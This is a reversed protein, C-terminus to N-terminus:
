CCLKILEAYPPLFPVSAIKGQELWLTKMESQGALCIFFAGLAANYGFAQRVAAEDLSVSKCEALLLPVIGQSTNMYSILDLRRKASFSFNPLSGIEKEVAILNKPFGLEYVMKHILRQRVM